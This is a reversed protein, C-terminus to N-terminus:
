IITDESQWVVKIVSSSILVVVVAAMVLAEMRRPRHAPIIIWVVSAEFGVPFERRGSRCRSGVANQEGELLVMLFGLRM